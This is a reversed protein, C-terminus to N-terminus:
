FLASAAIMGAVLVSGAALMTVPKISLPVPAPQSVSLRAEAVPATPVELVHGAPLLSSKSHFDKAWAKWEPNLAILENVSTGYRAALQYLTDGTRITYAESSGSPAQSTQVQKSPTEPRGPEGADVLAVVCEGPLGVLQTNEKKYLALEDNVAWRVMRRGPWGVRAM